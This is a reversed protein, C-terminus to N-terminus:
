RAKQMEFGIYDKGGDSTSTAYVEKFNENDSSLLVRYQKAYNQGWYLEVTSLEREKGLDINVTQPENTVASSWASTYDM